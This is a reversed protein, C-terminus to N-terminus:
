VKLPDAAPQGALFLLELNLEGAFERRPDARECPHDSLEILLEPPV